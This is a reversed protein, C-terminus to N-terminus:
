EILGEYSAPDMKLYEDSTYLLFTRYSEKYAVRRQDQLARDELIAEYLRIHEDNLELTFSQEYIKEADYYIYSGFLFAFFLVVPIIKKM